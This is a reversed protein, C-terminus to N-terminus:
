HIRQLMTWVGAASFLAALLASPLTGLRSGLSAGIGSLTANVAAAALSGVVIMALFFAGAVFVMLNGSNSSGKSAMESFVLISLGACIVLTGIASPWFAGWFVARGSPSPLLRSESCSLWAGVAGPLSGALLLFALLGIEKNHKWREKEARWDEEPAKPVPRVVPGGIELTAAVRDLVAPDIDEDGYLVIAADHGDADFYLFRIPQNNSLEHCDILYAPKGGAACPTFKDVSLGIAFSYSYRYPYRKARNELSANAKEFAAKAKVLIAKATKTDPKKQNLLSRAKEVEKWVNELAERESDGAIVPSHAEQFLYASAGSAGQGQAQLLILATTLIRANAACPDEKVSIVRIVDGDGSKWHNEGQQGFWNGPLEFSLGTKDGVSGQVTRPPPPSCATTLFLILFLAVTRM